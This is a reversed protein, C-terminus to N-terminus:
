KPQEPRGARRRLHGVIVDLGWVTLGVILTVALVFALLLIDGPEATNAISSPDFM